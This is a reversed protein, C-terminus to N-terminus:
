NTTLCDGKEFHLHM